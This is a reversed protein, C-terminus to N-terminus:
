VLYAKRLSNDVGVKEWLLEVAQAFGESLTASAFLQHSYTVCRDRVNTALYKDALLAVRTLTLLDEGKTEADQDESAIKLSVSYMIDFFMPLDGEESTESLVVKSTKAEQFSYAAFDGLQM